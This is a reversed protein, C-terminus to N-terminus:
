HGFSLCIWRANCDNGASARAYATIGRQAQCL